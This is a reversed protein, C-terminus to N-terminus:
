EQPPNLAKEKEQIKARLDKIDTLWSNIKEDGASLTSNEQSLFTEVAYKGLQAYIKEARGNLQSLEIRLVSKDGFDSIASGASSIGKKSVEVGSDIASRLKELFSAFAPKKKSTETNEPTVPTESTNEDSM